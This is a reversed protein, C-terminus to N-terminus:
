VPSETQITPVPAPLLSQVWTKFSGPLAEVASALDVVAKKADVNNKNMKKDYNKCMELTLEPLLQIVKLKQEVSLNRVGEFAKLKDARKFLIIKGDRWQIYELVPTETALYDPFRSEITVAQGIKTLNVCYEKIIKDISSVISNFDQESDQFRKQIAFLDDFCVPLTSM